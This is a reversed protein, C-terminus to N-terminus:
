VNMSRRGGGGMAKKRKAFTPVNTPKGGVGQAKAEKEKCRSVGDGPSETMRRAAKALLSASQINEKQMWEKSKIKWVKISLRWREKKSKRHRGLRAPCVMRNLGNKSMVFEKRRSERNM